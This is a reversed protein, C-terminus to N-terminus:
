EMTPWIMQSVSWERIERQLRRLEAVRTMREKFEWAERPPPVVTTDSDGAALEAGQDQEEEPTVPPPSLLAARFREANEQSCFRGIIFQGDSVCWSWQPDFNALNPIPQQRVRYSM